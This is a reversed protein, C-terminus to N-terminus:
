QKGCVFCIHLVNPGELSEEGHYDISEFHVFKCTELIASSSFSNTAATGTKQWIKSIFTVFMTINTALFFGLLNKTTAFVTRQQWRKGNGLLLLSAWGIQVVSQSSSAAHNPVVLSLHSRLCELVIQRILLELALGGGVGEVICGICM